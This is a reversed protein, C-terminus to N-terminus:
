RDGCPARMVKLPLFQGAAARMLSVAVRAGAEVFGCSKPIMSASLVPVNVTRLTAMQVVCFWSSPASSVTVKVAASEAVPTLAVAVARPFAHTQWYASDSEVCTERHQGEPLVAITYGGEIRGSRAADYEPDDDAGDERRGIRHPGVEVKKGASLSDPRRHTRRRM